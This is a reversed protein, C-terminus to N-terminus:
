ATRAHPDVVEQRVSLEYSLPGSSTRAEEAFATTLVSEGPPGAMLGRELVIWATGFPTVSVEAPGTAVPVEVVPAGADQFSSVPMTQWSTVRM